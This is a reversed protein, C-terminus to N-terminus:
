LEGTQVPKANAKLWAELDSQATPGAIAGTHLAGNPAVIVPLESGPELAESLAGATAALRARDQWNCQAYDNPTTGSASYRLWADGPVEACYVHSLARLADDVNEGSLDAPLIVPLHEASISALVANMQSCEACDISSFVFFPAPRAQYGEKALIPIGAHGAIATLNRLNVETIYGASAVNPTSFARAKPNPKEAVPLPAFLYYALAGIAAAVLGRKMWMGRPTPQPAPGFAAKLIGDREREARRKSYPGLQVTKKHGDVHTIFEVVLWFAPRGPAQREADAQIEIRLSQAFDSQDEVYTVGGVTVPVFRVASHHIKLKHSGNM